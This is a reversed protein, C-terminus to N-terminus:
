SERPVFRGSKDFNAEAARGNERLWVDFAKAAAIETDYAQGINVQTGNHTVRARWKNKSQNWGVGYFKSRQPSMGRFWIQVTPTCERKKTKFVAKSPNLGRGRRSVQRFFPNSRTTRLRVQSQAVRQANALSENETTLMEVRKQLAAAKASESQVQSTLEACQSAKAALEEQLRQEAGTKELRKAQDQKEAGQM